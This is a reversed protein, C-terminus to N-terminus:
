VKRFLEGVAVGLVAALAIALLVKPENSGREMNVVTQRSVGLERALAEQTLGVKERHIKVNSTFQTVVRNDVRLTVIDLKSQVFNQVCASFSFPSAPISRIPKVQDNCNRPCHPIDEPHHPHPRFASFLFSM